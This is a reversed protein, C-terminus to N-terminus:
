SYDHGNCRWQDTSMLRPSMNPPSWSNGWSAVGHWSRKWFTTVHCSYRPFSQSRWYVLEFIRFPKHLYKVIYSTDKCHILNPRFRKVRQIFWSPIMTSNEDRVSSRCSTAQCTDRILRLFWLWWRRPGHRWHEATFGGRIWHRLYELFRNAFFFDDTHKLM